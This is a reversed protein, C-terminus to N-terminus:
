IAVQWAGRSRTGARLLRQTEHIVLDGVIINPLGNSFTTWSKGGNATQYVGHDTAAFLRQADQPDIAIANVAIDPLNGSRNSWSAGMDNSRFLHGAGFTSVSVWLTAGSLVIDSIFGTTPATLETVEASGWAGNDREIRFMRGSVTGAFLRKSTAFVLASCQDAKGDARPPLSLQSWSAGSDTSVFVTVGARAVRVGDVAM